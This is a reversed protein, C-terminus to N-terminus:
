IRKIRHLVPSCISIRPHLICLTLGEVKDMGELRALVTTSRGELPLIKLSVYADKKLKKVFRTYVTKDKSSILVDIDGSDKRRRRYSGAITLEAEKDVKKLANKLFHKM